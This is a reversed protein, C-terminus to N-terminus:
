RRNECNIMVRGVSNVTRSGPASAPDGTVPATIIEDTATFHM